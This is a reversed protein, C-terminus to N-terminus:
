RKRNWGFGGWGRDRRNKARQKKRAEQNRLRKLQRQSKRSNGDGSKLRRSQRWSLSKDNSVSEKKLKRGKEYNTMPKDSASSSPRMGGGSGGSDRDAQMQPTVDVAGMNSDQQLKWDQLYDPMDDKKGTRDYFEMSDKQARDYGAQDSTYMRSNGQGDEGYHLKGYRDEYFNLGKDHDYYSESNFNEWGGTIIGDQDYTVGEQDDATDRPNNKYYKDKESQVFSSNSFGPQNYPM